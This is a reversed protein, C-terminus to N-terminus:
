PNVARGSPINRFHEAIGDIVAGLTQASWRYSRADMHANHFAEQASLEDLSALFNAVAVADRRPRKM